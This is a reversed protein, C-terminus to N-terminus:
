NMRGSINSFIAGQGIKHFPYSVALLNSLENCLSRFFRKYKHTKILAFHLPLLYKLSHVKPISETYLLPILLAAVSILRQEKTNQKEFIYIDLFTRELLLMWLHRLHFGFIQAFRGAGVAPVRAFHTSFIKRSFFLMRFVSGINKAQALLRTTTYYHCTESQKVNRGRDNRKRHQHYFRVM